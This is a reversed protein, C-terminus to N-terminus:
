RKKLSLNIKTAMENRPNIRLINAISKKASAINNNSLYIGTINIWAQEYDPDFKLSALLLEESKKLNNETEYIYALNLLAQTHKPDQNIIFEFTKKAPIIKEQKLLASGYKNQFDLIYPALRISNAYFKEAMSYEQASFYAEGIRYSIWADKNTTSVTNLKKNLVVDVGLKTTLNILENFNNQIFYLHTFVDLAQELNVDVSKLLAQASDLYYKQPTFKEYQQIFAKARTIKDAQKENIAFLGIFERTKAIKEKPLPKRIWHDHVTVHPIDISGSQPMHCNVCNNKNLNRKDIALSCDNNKSHCSKCSTNFNNADVKKVSVHPNHCTVCTLGNKYPRLSKEEKKSDVSQIFCKSQKLRDAHSAMIFEDEANKYKPLFVTMYDSLKKGPKFDVFTKGDKLVTNGQLHCRQCVDFQLDISLKAPNVISYDIYKSTDILEGNMKRKVHESGPGHCRECGIGNPINTYKNESGLVIEPFSNHCSMCELGIKRSFRTNNGADFGPPLDWKKLQAYFTLPMQTLYGNHLMLHSNTHQGSGIIYSVKEKRFYPFNGKRSEEIFLNNNQWNASYNFNKTSDNVLIPKSFDGSSKKLSAEDISKGMGTEIFTTYINQHCNKCTQMGVYKASDSHNLYVLSDNSKVATKNSNFECSNIFIVILIFFLVFLSRKMKTTEYKLKLLNIKEACIFGM